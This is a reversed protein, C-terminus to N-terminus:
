SAEEIPEAGTVRDGDYILRVRRPPPLQVVRTASQELAKSVSETMREGIERLGSEVREGIQKQGEITADLIARQSSELEEPYSTNIAVPVPSARELMAKTLEVMNKAQASDRLSAAKESAEIMRLINPDPRGDGTRAALVAMQTRMESLERQADQLAKGAELAAQTAAQAAPNDAPPTGGQVGPQPLYVEDEANWLMGLASRAESRKAVGASVLRSWREAKKLELEQLAGVRSLDFGVETTDLEDDTAFDPLLQGAIDEAFLRMTPLINQEWLAERLERMTAGVKVGELGTGFGVVAAPVRMVASVREEPVDRMGGLNLDNPSFGFPKLDTPSTFVLTEGRRDGSTKQEIDAKQAKAEDPSLTRKSDKSPSVMLGPVGLNRLITASFRAAEEDTFIERLVKKMPSYGKRMNNPDLGYRHHIVDEAPIEIPSRGDPSYDYHSIFKSGDSAWRPDMMWHPIFWNQVPVNFANRRKVEYGNGDLWWSCLLAMDLTSRAIVARRLTPDWTPRRLIPLMPHSPWMERPGDTPVKFMMPPAEPFTAGILGICAEFLSSGSGDGVKDAYSSEGPLNSGGWAFQWAASRMGDWGGYGPLPVLQKLDDLARKLEGV